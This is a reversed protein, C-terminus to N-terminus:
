PGRAVVDGLHERLPLPRDRPAGAGEGAPSQPAPRHHLARISPHHYRPVPFGKWIWDAKRRRGVRIRFSLGPTRVSPTEPPM